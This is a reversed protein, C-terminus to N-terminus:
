GAAQQRQSRVERNVQSMIEWARAARAQETEVKLLVRGQRQSEDHLDADGGDIGRGIFAGLMGGVYSGALITGLAIEAWAMEQIAMAAHLLGLTPLHVVGIGALAGSM